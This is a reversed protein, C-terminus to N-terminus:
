SPIEVDSREAEQVAKVYSSCPVDVEPWNLYEDESEPEAYM